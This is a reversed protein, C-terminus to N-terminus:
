NDQEIYLQQLAPEINNTSNFSTELLQQLRLKDHDVVMPKRFGKEIDYKYTVDKPKSLPRNRNMEALQTHTVMLDITSLMLLQNASSAHRFASHKIMHSRSVVLRHLIKDYLSHQGFDEFVLKKFKELKSDKAM